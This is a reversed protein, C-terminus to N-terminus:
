DSLVDDLAERCRRRADDTLSYHVYYGRKDAEVLGTRRLIALHQSAASQSLDLRAALAGVCLPRESLLRLMQVRTDSALAKFVGALEEARKRSDAMETILCISIYDVDVTL